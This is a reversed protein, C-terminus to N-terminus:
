GYASCHVACVKRFIYDTIRRWKQLKNTHYDRKTVTFRELNKRDRGNDPHENIVLPEPARNDDAQRSKGNMGRLQKSPVTWVHSVFM